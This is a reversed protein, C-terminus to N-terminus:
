PTPKQDDELLDIPSRIKSLDRGTIHLYVSTTSASCHGLLRQIYYLDTGSELLHTAFSHRLTHVSAKKKIGAKLISAQFVRQVCSVSVPESPNRGPFLWQLPRYAKYYCRLIELNREGLLTYRDKLGKGENVRIMMRGSEIDSVKLRTAESVRLGASYITMLIARHKLNRTASLISEVEQKSLVGPLKKRQKSRPIRQANWQRQLTKEFLFKLASYSQVVVSQSAKKEEMLYHLYDRIEEDGLEAPSKRFYVAINKMCALYCSITRPSLRRLKMDMEMQDRLKGMVHRREPHRLEVVGSM